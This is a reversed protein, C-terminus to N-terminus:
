IIGMIIIITLYREHVKSMAIDCVKSTWKSTETLGCQPFYEMIHMQKSGAEINALDDRIHTPILACPSLCFIKSVLM